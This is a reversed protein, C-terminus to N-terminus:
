DDYHRVQDYCDLRHVRVDTLGYSVEIGFVEGGVIPTGRFDSFSFSFPSVSLTPRLQAQDWGASAM